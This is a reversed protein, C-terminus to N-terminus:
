RWHGTRTLTGDDTEAIDRHMPMQRLPALAVVKLDHRDGVRIGLAAREGRLQDRSHSRVRVGPRQQPAFV